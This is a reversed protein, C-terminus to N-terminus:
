RAPPDTKGGDLEVLYVFMLGDSPQGAAKTEAFLATEDLLARRARLKAKGNWLPVGGSRAGTLDDQLWQEHCLEHAERINQAEFTVTATGGVDITFVHAVLDGTMEGDGEARPMHGKLASTRGIVAPETRKLEKAVLAPSKGAASMELLRRDDEHTWQRYTAMVGGEAGRGRPPDNRKARDVRLERFEEPGKILRRKRTANEDNDPAGVTLSDIVKSALEKARAARVAPAQKPKNTRITLGLEVLRRIAEPRSPKPHDQKAIWDDLADLQDHMRVLIGTGLGTSRPRGRGKKAIDLISKGM